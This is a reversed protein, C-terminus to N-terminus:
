INVESSVTARPNMRAVSIATGMPRTQPSELRTFAAILGSTWIM